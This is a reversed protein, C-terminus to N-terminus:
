TILCINKAQTTKKWRGLRHEQGLGTCILLKDLPLTQTRPDDQSVTIAHLSNVFGPSQLGVNIQGVPEFRKIGSSGRDGKILRWITIAESGHALPETFVAKKKGKTWLCISRGFLTESYTPSELNFVKIMRDDSASYLTPTGSILSVKIEDEWSYKIISQDNRTTTQPPSLELYEIWLHLGVFGITGTVCVGLGAYFALRLVLGIRRLASVAQGKADEPMPEAPGSKLGGEISGLIQRGDNQLTSYKAPRLITLRPRVVLPRHGLGSGLRQIMM